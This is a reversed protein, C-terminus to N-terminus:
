RAVLCGAQVAHHCRGPRLTRQTAGCSTVSPAKTRSRVCVTLPASRRWLLLLLLGHCLFAHSLCTLSLNATFTACLEALQHMTAMHAAAAQMHMAILPRCCLQPQLSRNSHQHAAQVSSQQRKRWGVQRGPSLMRGQRGVLRSRNQGADCRTWHASTQRCGETCACCRAM